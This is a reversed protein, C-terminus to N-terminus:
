GRWVFDLCCSNNDCMMQTREVEKHCNPCEFKGNDKPIPCYYETEMDYIIKESEEESLGCERLCEVAQYHTRNLRISFTVEKMSKVNCEMPRLNKGHESIRWEECDSKIMFETIFDDVISSFCAWKGNYEVYCRSMILLM